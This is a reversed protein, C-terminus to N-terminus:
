KMNIVFRFVEIFKTIFQIHISNLINIILLDTSILRQM